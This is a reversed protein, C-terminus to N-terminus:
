ERLATHIAEWTGDQRWQRYYHYVRTWPPYEQPLMRWACGARVLYFIGDVILRLSWEGPRGLSESVPLLPELYQWELPTCGIFLAM